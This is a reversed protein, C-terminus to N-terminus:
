TICYAAPTIHRSSPLVGKWWFWKANFLCPSSKDHRNQFCLTLLSLFLLLKIQYHCCLTKGQSIHIGDRKNYEWYCDNCLTANPTAGEEGTIFVDPSVNDHLSQFAEIMLPRKAGYFQQGKCAQWCNCEWADYFKTNLHIKSLPSENPFFPDKHCPQTFGCCSCCDILYMLMSVEFRCGAEAQVKSAEVDMKVISPFPLPDTSRLCEILHGPVKCDVLVNEIIGIKRSVVRPNNMELATDIGFRKAIQLVSPNNSATVAQNSTQKHKHM